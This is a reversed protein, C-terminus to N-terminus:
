TGAAFMVLRGLGVLLAAAMIAGIIQYTSFVEVVRPQTKVARMPSEVLQYSLQACMLSIAVVAVNYTLTSQERLPGVLGIALTHYLYISYSIKGLYTMGPLALLRGVPTENGPLVSALLLVCGVVPFAFQLPTTWSYPPHAAWFNASVVLAGLGIWFLAYQQRVTLRLGDVYLKALVAGAVFIDAYTYTLYYLGMSPVSPNVLYAYAVRGANTMVVVAVVFAVWYRSRLAWYIVPALMYFQEEVAITWLHPFPGRLWENFLGMEMNMTFTFLQPVNPQDRTGSNGFVFMAVLLFVLYAPWIRVARRFLYHSYNIRGFRKHDQDLIYFALFGSLCFFTVVALNAVAWHGFAVTNAHHFLVAFAALARLGDFSSIWNTRSEVGVTGHM